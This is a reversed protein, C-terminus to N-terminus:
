ATFSVVPLDFRERVLRDIAAERARMFQEPKMRDRFAAIEQEAEQEIRLRDISDLASRAARVLEADLAGLRDVLARRAEGRLGRAADHARDLESAMRDLLGDIASGAAGRTHVGTLKILVRELHARLSGRPSAEGEGNEAAEGGPVTSPLGLARRWEDFADLVDAECFDIRVPRRRRGSKRQREFYRDIGSSAVKLPIGRAAWGSV